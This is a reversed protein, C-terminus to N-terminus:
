HASLVATQTLVGVGLVSAHPAGLMPRTHVLLEAGGVLVVGLVGVVGFAGGGLDGVHTTQRRGPTKQKRQRRQIKMRLAKYHYSHGQTFPPTQKEKLVKCTSASKEREM